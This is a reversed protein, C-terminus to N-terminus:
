AMFEGQAIPFYKIYTYISACESHNTHEWEIYKVKISLNVFDMLEYNVSNLYRM